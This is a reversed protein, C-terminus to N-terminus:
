HGYRNAWYKDRGKNKIASPQLPTGNDNFDEYPVDTRELGGFPGNCNRGFKVEIKNVIDGTPSLRFSDKVFEGSVHDKTDPPTVKSSKPVQNETWSSTELEKSGKQPDLPMDPNEPLHAMPAM